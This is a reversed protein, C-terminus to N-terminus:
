IESETCNELGEATVNVKYEYVKYEVTIEM